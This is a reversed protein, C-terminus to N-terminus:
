RALESDFCTRQAQCDLSEVGPIGAIGDERPSDRPSDFGPAMLRHGSEQWSSTSVNGNLKDTQVLTVVGAIKFM